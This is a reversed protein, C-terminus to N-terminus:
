AAGNDTGAAANVAKSAEMIKAIAEAAKDCMAAQERLARWKREEADAKFAAYAPDFCAVCFGTVFGIALAFLVWM